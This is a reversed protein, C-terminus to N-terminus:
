LQLGFTMVRIMKQEEPALLERARDTESGGLSHAYHIIVGGQEIGGMEQILNRWMQALLHAHLSRFGMSFAMKIMAARSIDWMWGETPRFVYHVKVGGHTGSIINLSERMMSRTNLIGNIFTVRVKDSIEHRGHCDVHTEEFHPGMLLYTSEGFLTKGMSEFAQAVPSPLKLETNWKMRTQHASLQLYHVGSYFANVVNDWIEHISIVDYFDAGNGLSQLASSYLNSTEISSFPYSCEGNKIPMEFKFATIGKSDVTSILEGQQDYNFYVEYILEDQNDSSHLDWYYAEIKLPKGKLSSQHGIQFRIMKRQTIGTLDGYDQSQGDDSIAQELFGQNNYFYFCRSLLGKQSSRFIATCKKSSPDYQYLTELGKDDIQAILLTSDEESYIYRTSYNEVQNIDSNENEDIECPNQSINTLYGDYEINVSVPEDIQGTSVNAGEICPNLLFSDSPSQEECVAICAFM